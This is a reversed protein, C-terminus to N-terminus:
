ARLAGEPFDWHAHPSSVSFWEYGRPGAPLLRTNWKLLIHREWPSPEPILINDDQCKGSKEDTLIFYLPCIGGSSCTPFFSAQKVNIVHGLRGHLYLKEWLYLM